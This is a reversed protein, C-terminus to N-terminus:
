VLIQIECRSQSCDKIVTYIIKINRYKKFSEVTSLSILKIYRKFANFLASSFLLQKICVVRAATDIFQNRTFVDCLSAFPDLATTFLKGPFSLISCNHKVRLNCFENSCLHLHYKSRFSLM